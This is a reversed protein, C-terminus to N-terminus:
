MVSVVGERTEWDVADVEERSRCDLVAFITYPDDSVM